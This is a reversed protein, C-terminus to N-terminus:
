RTRADASRDQPQLQYGQPLLSKIKLKAFVHAAAAAVFPLGLWIAYPWGRVVALM